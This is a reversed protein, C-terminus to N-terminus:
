SRLQSYKGFVERTTESVRRKRSQPRQRFDDLGLHENLVDRRDYRGRNYCPTLRIGNWPMRCIDPKSGLASTPASTPQLGSILSM